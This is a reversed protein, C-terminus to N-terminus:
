PRSQASGSRSRRRERGCLPEFHDALRVLDMRDVNAPADLPNRLIKLQVFITSYITCQLFKTSDRDSM